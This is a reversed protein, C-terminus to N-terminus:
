IDREEGSILYGGDSSDDEDLFFDKFIKKTITKEFTERILKILKGRDNILLKDFLARIESYTLSNLGLIQIFLFLEEDPIWSIIREKEQPRAIIEKKLQEYINIRKKRDIKLLVNKLFKLNYSSNDLLCFFDVYEANELKSVFDVAVNISINRVDFKQIIKEDDKVGDYVKNLCDLSNLYAPLCNFLAVADEIPIQDFLNLIDKSSVKYIPLFLLMKRLRSELLKLNFIKKDDRYTNDFEKCTFLIATLIVDLDLNDTDIIKAFEEFDTTNLRTILVGLSQSNFHEVGIESLAGLLLNQPLRDIIAELIQESMCESPILDIVEFFIKKDDINKFINYFIKDTLRDKPILKLIPIINKEDCKSFFDIFFSERKYKDDIKQWIQLLKESSARRLAIGLLNECSKNNLLDKLLVDIKDEPITELAIAIAEASRKERPMMQYVLFAHPPDSKELLKVYVSESREKEPISLFFDYMAKDSDFAFVELYTSYVNATRFKKPIMEFCEELIDVSAKELLYAYKKDDIYKKETIQFLRQYSEFTGDLYDFIKYWSENQALLKTPLYEIISSDLLVASTWFSRRMNKPLKDFFEDVRNEKLAVALFILMENAGSEVLARIKLKNEADFNGEKLLDILDKNLLEEYSVDYPNIRNFPGKILVKDALRNITSYLSKILAEYNKQGTNYEREKRFYLKLEYSNKGIGYNKVLFEEIENQPIYIADDRLAYKNYYDVCDKTPDCFFTDSINYIPDDINVSVMMHGPISFLSADIELRRLLEVILCSFGVCVMYQTDKERGLVPILLRADSIDILSDKYYFNTTLIYSFIYKETPSLPRDDIRSGNILDVWYNLKDSARIAENITFGKEFKIKSYENDNLLERLIKINELFCNKQEVNMLQYHNENSTLFGTRMTAWMDPTLYDIIVSDFRLEHFLSTNIFNNILWNYKIHLVRNDIYFEEVENKVVFNYSASVLTDIGM